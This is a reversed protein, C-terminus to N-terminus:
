RGGRSPASQPGWLLNVERAKEVRKWLRRLGQPEKRGKARKVWRQVADRMKSVRIAVELIKLDENEQVRGHCHFDGTTTIRLEQDNTIALDRAVVTGDDHLGIVFGANRFVTWVADDPRDIKRLSEESVLPKPPGFAREIMARMENRPPPQNRVVETPAMDKLVVRGEPTDFIDLRPTDASMWRNYEQETLYIEEVLDLNTDDINKTSLEIM